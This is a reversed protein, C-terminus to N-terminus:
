VTVACSIISLFTVFMAVPVPVGGDPGGGTEGGTSFTTGNSSAGASLIVFPVM